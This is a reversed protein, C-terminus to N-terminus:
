PSLFIRYTITHSRTKTALGQHALAFLFTTGNESTVTSNQIEAFLGVEGVGGTFSDYSFRAYYSRSGLTNAVESGDIIKRYIESELQTANEDIIKAQTPNSQNYGGTGLAMYRIRISTGDSISRALMRRAEMTVKGIVDSVISGDPKVAGYGGFGLCGLEPPYVAVWDVSSEQGPIKYQEYAQFNILVDTM